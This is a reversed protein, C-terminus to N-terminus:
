LRIDEKINFLPSSSNSLEDFVRKEWKDDDQLENQINDWRRQPISDPKKSQIITEKLFTIFALYSFLLSARFAGHKYCIVSEQILKNVKESFRKEDSWQEIPLKM